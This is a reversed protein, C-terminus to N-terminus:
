TKCEEIKKIEFLNKSTREASYCNNKLIQSYIVDSDYTEKDIYIKKGNVILEGIINSLLLPNASYEWLSKSKNIQQTNNQLYAPIIVNREPFIFKDKYKTIIFSNEPTYNLIEQRFDLRYEQNSWQKVFFSSPQLIYLTSALMFIVFILVAIKKKHALIKEVFLFMFFIFPIISYRLVSANLSFAEVGWSMRGFYFLVSFLFLYLIYLNFKLNKKKQFIFIIGLLIWFFFSSFLYTSIHKVLVNPSLKIFDYNLLGLKIFGQESFNFSEQLFSSTITYGTSLPSGYLENNLIPIPLLILLGVLLGFFILSYKKNRIDLFAQYVILPATYFLFDYRFFISFTMFFYFLIKSSFLDDKSKHIKLFYYLGGIFLPISLTSTKTELSFLVMIPIIFFILVLLILSTKENEYLKAIKYIYCAMMGYLLLPLIFFFLTDFQFLLRFVLFIGLFTKPVYKGGFSSGDRLFIYKEYKEPIPLNKEIALKGTEAYNKSHLYVVNTNPSNFTLGDFNTPILFLLVTIQLFIILFVFFIEKKM